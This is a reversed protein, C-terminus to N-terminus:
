RARGAAVPPLAERLEDLLRSALAGPEEGTAAQGGRPEFFRARVVPRVPFRVIDPTGDILVLVIRAEPVDIALRGVGSRARLRRGRSVTGEPFIGICAGGRLESVARELAAADGAEREIPIQGMGNLVWGLGPIRWLSSKALARIQRRGRAALGIMVPDWQSDHNGVVLLPGSEPVAELGEVRLRAWLGLPRCIEM